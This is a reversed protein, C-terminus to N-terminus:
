SAARVATLVDDLITSTDSVVRPRYQELAHTVLAVHETRLEIRPRAQTMHHLRTAIDAASVYARADLTRAIRDLREIWRDRDHAAVAAAAADRTPGVDTLADFAAETSRVVDGDTVLEGDLLMELGADACARAPGRDVGGALLLDRLARNHDHFWRSDHFAADSAHHLAIGDALDGGADDPATHGASAPLLRVRAIAGLDPLMAGALFGPSAGCPQRSAVAVHGVLNVTGLTRRGSRSAGLRGWRPM